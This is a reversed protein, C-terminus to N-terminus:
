DSPNRGPYPRGWRQFMFEGMRRKHQYPARDPWRGYDTGRKYEDCELENHSERFRLQTAIEECLENVTVDRYAPEAEVSGLTLARKWLPAKNPPRTPDSMPSKLDLDMLIPHRYRDEIASLFKGLRIPKLGLESCIHKNKCTEDLVFVNVGIENPKEAGCSVGLCSLAEGIKPYVDDLLIM